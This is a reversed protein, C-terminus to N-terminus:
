QRGNHGGTKNALPTLDEAKIGYRKVIEAAQAMDLTFRLENVFEAFAGDDGSSMVTCGVVVVDASREEIEVHMPLDYKLLLAGLGASNM